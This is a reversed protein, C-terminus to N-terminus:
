IIEVCAWFNIKELYNIKRGMAMFLEELINGQLNGLIEM